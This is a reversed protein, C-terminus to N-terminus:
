ASVGDVVDQTAVPLADDLAPASPPPAPEDAIGLEVASRRYAACLLDRYFDSVAGDQNEWVAIRRKMSEDTPLATSRAARRLEHILRSKTWKAEERAQALRNPM